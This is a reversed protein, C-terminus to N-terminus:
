ETGKLGVGNEYEQVQVAKSAGSPMALIWREASPASPDEVDFLVQQQLEKAPSLAVAEQPHCPQVFPHWTICVGMKFGEDYQILQVFGNSNPIPHEDSELLLGTARSCALTTLQRPCTEKVFFNMFNSPKMQM